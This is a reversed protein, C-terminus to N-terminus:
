ELSASLDDSPAGGGRDSTVSQITSPISQLDDEVGVAKEEELEEEELLRRKVVASEFVAAVAEKGTEMPSKFFQQLKSAPTSATEDEEEEEIMSKVSPGTYSRGRSRTSGGWAQPEISVSELEEEELEEYTHKSRRKAKPLISTSSPQPPRANALQSKTPVQASPPVPSLLTPDDFPNTRVEAAASHKWATMTNEKEEPNAVDLPVFASKTVQLPGPLVNKRLQEQSATLSATLSSSSLASLASGTDELNVDLMAESGADSGKYAKHVEAAPTSHRSLASMDISSTRNPPPPMSSVPLSLSTHLPNPKHDRCLSRRVPSTVAIETQKSLVSHMENEDGKDTWIDDDRESDGQRIQASDPTGSPTVGPLSFAPGAYHMNLHSTSNPPREPEKGTMWSAYSGTHSGHSGAPRHITDLGLASAAPTSVVPMSPLGFVSGYPARGDANPLGIGLGEMLSVRSDIKLDECYAFLDRATLETGGFSGAGGGEEPDHPLDVSAHMSPQRM